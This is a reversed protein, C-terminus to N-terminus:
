RKRFDNDRKQRAALFDNDRRQRSAVLGVFTQVLETIKCGGCSDRALQGLRHEFRRVLDPYDEIGPVRHKSV